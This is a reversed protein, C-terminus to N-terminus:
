TEVLGLVVRHLCGAHASRRHGAGPCWPMREGRQRVFRGWRRSLGSIRRGPRQEGQITRRRSSGLTSLEGRRSAGRRPTSRSPRERYREPSRLDALFRGQLDDPGFWGPTGPSRVTHPRSRRSRALTSPFATAWGAGLVGTWSGPSRRSHGISELMWWMRAAVAGSQDDYVVM